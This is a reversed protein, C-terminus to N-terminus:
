SKPGYETMNVAPTVLTENSTVIKLSLKDSILSSNSRAILLVNGGCIISLILM